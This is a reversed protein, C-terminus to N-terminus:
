AWLNKDDLDEIITVGFDLSTIDDDEDSQQDLEEFHLSTEENSMTM